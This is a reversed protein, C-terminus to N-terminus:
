LSMEVDLFCVKPCEVLLRANPPLSFSVLAAGMEVSVEMPLLVSGPFCGRSGVHQVAEGEGDKCLTLLETTVGKAGEAPCPLAPFPLFPGPPSPPLQAVRASPPCFHPASPMVPCGRGEAQATALSPPALPAAAAGRQEPGLEARLQNLWSDGM